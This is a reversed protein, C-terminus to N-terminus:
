ERAFGFIEFLESLDCACAREFAGLLDDTSAIGGANDAYYDSLASFYANEGIEHRVTHHFWAAVDYVVSAYVSSTPFRCSSDDIALDPFTTQMSAYASQWRRVEGDAVEEGRTSELFVNSLYTALGEDLWPESVPDSGVVDYFWQHALEHSVIIDYFTDFPRPAYVSSILILGSFEVGAAARLPVEVFDIEDFPLPGIRNGYIALAESATTLTREAAAGASPSFWTRLTKGATQLEREEYGLTLVLSFDRASDAVFRHVALGAEDRSAVLRGSAAPAVASSATVTVVYDAADSWLTDGIGCTSGTSWGNEDLVALIPYFATLVLSQPNKTLIGYGTVSKDAYLTSAGARGDFRLVLSITQTPSLPSPLIVPLVTPDPSAGIELTEGGLRAETVRLFANGYLSANNPFLRFIVEGIATPSTNEVTVSANGGFAGSDWDVTLRIEYRPAGAAATGLILLIAGVAWAGIGRPGRGKSRTM